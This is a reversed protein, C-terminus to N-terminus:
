EITLKKESGKEANLFLTYMPCVFAIFLIGSQRQLVSEFLSNFAFCSVILLLWYDRARLALKILSIIWALLVAGGLIGTELTTQLYQNHPNFAISGNEDQRALLLQGKLALRESLHEDVNGTGVGLPHELIEQLTVTWMVMRTENGTKYQTKTKVFADPDRMFVFLSNATYALDEKLGPAYRFLVFLSLPIGACIFYFIRRDFKQWILVLLLIASILFLFLIGSLSLCLLILILAVLSFPIIWSPKFYDERKYFNWWAGFLAITAFMATYTPHHVTSIYVSTFQITQQGGQTLISGVGFLFAITIGSCLGLALTTIRLKFDPVFSFLLPLLLLSVKNEAYLRALSENNTFLIGVLYVLYISILLVNPLLRIFRLHKLFIGTLVVLFLGFIMLVSLKQSFCLVATTLAIYGNYVKGYNLDKLM